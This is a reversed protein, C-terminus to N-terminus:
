LGFCHWASFGVHLVPGLGDGAGLSRIHDEGDSTKVRHELLPAVGVLNALTSSDEGSGDELVEATLDNLQRAIGALFGVLLSDDRTM